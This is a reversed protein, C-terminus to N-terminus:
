GGPAECWGVWGGTALGAGAGRSPSLSILLGILPALTPLSVRSCGWINSLSSSLGTPAGMRGNLTLCYAQRPWACPHGQTPVSTSHIGLTLGPAGDVAVDFLSCWNSVAHEGFVPRKPVKGVLVKCSHTQLWRLHTNVGCFWPSTWLFACATSANENDLVGRKEIRDFISDTRNIRDVSHM